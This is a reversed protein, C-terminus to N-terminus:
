IREDWRDGSVLDVVKFEKESTRRLRRVFGHAAELTHFSWCTGDIGFAVLYLNNFPAIEVSQLTM